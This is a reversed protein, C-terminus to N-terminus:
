VSGRLVRRTSALSKRPRRKVESDASWGHWFTISVKANPNDGAGGGSSGTCAATVLALALTGAAAALPRHHRPRSMSAGRPVPRGATRTTPTTVHDRTVPDRTVPRTALRGQSRDGTVQSGRRM